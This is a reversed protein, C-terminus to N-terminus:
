KRFVLAPAGEKTKVTLAGDAATAATIADITIAQGAQEAGTEATPAPPKPVFQIGAETAVYTGEQRADKEQVDEGCTERVKAELQWTRDPALTLTAATIERRCEGEAAIAAPLDAGEVQALTYVGAEPPPPAPQQAAVRVPVAALATVTAAFAVRRLAHKM